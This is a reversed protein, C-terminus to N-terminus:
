LGIKDYVNFDTIEGEEEIDSLMRLTQTRPLMKIGRALLTEAMKGLETNIQEFFSADNKSAYYSKFFGFLFTQFLDPRRADHALIRFLSPERNREIIEERGGIFRGLDAARCHLSYPHRLVLEMEDASVPVDRRIAVLYWFQNEAVGFDRMAELDILNGYPDVNGSHLSSYFPDKEALGGRFPDHQTKGALHFKRLQEGFRKGADHLFTEIPVGELQALLEYSSLPLDMRMWCFYREGPRSTRTIQAYGKLDSFWEGFDLVAGGVGQALQLGAVENRAHNIEFLGEPQFSNPNLKNLDYDLPTLGKFEVVTGDKTVLFWARHSRSEVVEVPAINKRAEEPLAGFRKRNTILLWRNADLFAISPELQASGRMFFAERSTTDLARDVLGKAARPFLYSLYRRHIAHSRFTKTMKPM